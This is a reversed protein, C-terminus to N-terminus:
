KGDFAEITKQLTTRLYRPHVKVPLGAYVWALLLADRQDQNMRPLDNGMFYKAEEQTIKGDKGHWHKRLPKVLTVDLKMSECMQMILIGTQHNMGASRGIAAAKRTSMFKGLVHWNSKNIWGGEIFVKVKDKPCGDVDTTLLRLFEILQPFSMKYATCLKTDKYVIGVGSEQNDPDIGIYITDQTKPIEIEKENLKIKM